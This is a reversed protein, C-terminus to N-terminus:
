LKLQLIGARSPSLLKTSTVFKFFLTEEPSLASILQSKTSFTMFPRCSFNQESSPISNIGTRNMGKEYKSLICVVLYTAPVIKALDESKPVM